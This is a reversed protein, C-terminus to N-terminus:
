LVSFTILLEIHPTLDVECPPFLAFGFVIAFFYSAHWPGGDRKARRQRTQTRDSTM